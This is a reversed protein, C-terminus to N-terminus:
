GGSAVVPCRAASEYVEVGRLCRYLSDPTLQAQPHQDDVPTLAGSLVVIAQSEPPRGAQYPFQWELTAAFLYAICPTSILVLLFLPAAIWALRRRDEPCRWWARGLAAM